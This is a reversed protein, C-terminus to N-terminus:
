ETEEVEQNLLTHLKQVALAKAKWAEEAECLDAYDNIFKNLKESYDPGEAAEALGDLMEKAKEAAILAEENAKDIAAEVARKIRRAKMDLLDAIFGKGKVLLSLRKTKKAM